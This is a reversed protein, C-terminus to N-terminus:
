ADWTHDPMKAPYCICTARLRPPLWTRWPMATPISPLTMDMAAEFGAAFRKREEIMRAYIPASSTWREKRSLLGGQPSCPTLTEHGFLRALAPLLTIYWSLFEGN